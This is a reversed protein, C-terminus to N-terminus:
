LTGTIYSQISISSHPIISVSSYWLVWLFDQGVVVKDVVFGVCQGAVSGLVRSTFPWCSGLGITIFFIGNICPYLVHQQQQQKHAGQSFSVAWIYITVWMLAEWVQQEYISQSECWHKEFKSSMYLNHSVDTSRLSAAWIYITAWM